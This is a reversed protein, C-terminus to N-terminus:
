PASAMIRYFRSPKTSPHSDTKPPGNDIWQVMGGTGTITGAATSWGEGLASCYQV